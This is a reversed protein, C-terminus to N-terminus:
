WGSARLRLRGRPALKYCAPGLDPGRREANVGPLGEPYSRGWADYCSWVGGASPVGSMFRSRVTASTRTSRAGPATRASGTLKEQLTLMLEGASRLAPPDPGMLRDCLAGPSPDERVM